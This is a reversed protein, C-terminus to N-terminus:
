HCTGAAEDHAAGDTGVFRMSWSDAPLTLEVVGYTDDLRVLSNAAPDKFPELDAGGTGAIIQVIGRAPDAMGDPDQPGFREYDHDHGNLM